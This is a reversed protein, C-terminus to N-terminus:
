ALALEVLRAELAAIVAHPGSVVSLTPSNISALSLQESLLPLVEPESLAVALMAGPPLQGMLRARQAVLDLADDLSMVGALCAAVYEGISHGIMGAPQIGLSMWLRALAYEIVFLAPQTLETQKLREAAQELAHEAPFLVERLDLGLCSKLRECCRDVTERFVAETRYLGLGMNPYQAGQGTFMFQVSRKGSKHVGGIVRQAS